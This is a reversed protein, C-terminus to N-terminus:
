QRKTLMNFALLFFLFSSQEQTPATTNSCNSKFWPVDGHNVAYWCGQLWLCPQSVIFVSTYDDLKEVYIRIFLLIQINEDCWVRSVREAVEHEQLCNESTARIQLVEAHGIREAFSDELSSWACGTLKKATMAFLCETLRQEINKQLTSDLLFLYIFVDLATPHHRDHLSTLLSSLSFGTCGTEVLM